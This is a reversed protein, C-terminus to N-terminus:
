ESELHHEPVPFQPQGTVIADALPLKVQKVYDTAVVDAATGGGCRPVM